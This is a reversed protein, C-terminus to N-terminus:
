QTCQVKCHLIGLERPTELLIFDTDNKIYRELTKLVEFTHNFEKMDKEAVVSAISQIVHFAKRYKERQSPIRSTDPNTVTTAITPMVNGASNNNEDVMSKDSDSRAQVDFARHNELFYDRSWRQSCLEPAFVDVADHKRCAMMHCCPLAMSTWFSCTCMDVCVNRVVSNRGQASYAGNEVATFKDHEQFQKEM